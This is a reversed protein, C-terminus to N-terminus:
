EAHRRIAGSGGTIAGLELGGEDPGDAREAAFQSTDIIALERGGAEREGMGQREDEDGFMRGHALTLEGLSELDLSWREHPQEVLEARHPEDRSLLIRVIMAGVGQVEGSGATSGGLAKAAGHIAHAGPEESFDGVVLEGIRKAQELRHTVGHGATM